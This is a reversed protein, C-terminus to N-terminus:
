PAVLVVWTHSRLTFPVMHWLRNGVVGRLALLLLAYKALQLPRGVAERKRAIEPPLFMTHHKSAWGSNWWDFVFIGIIPFAAVAAYAGFESM